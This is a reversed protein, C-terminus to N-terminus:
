RALQSLLCLLSSVGNGSVIHFLGTRSRSALDHPRPTRLSEAAVCLESRGPPQDRSWLGRSEIYPWTHGSNRCVPDTLTIWDQSGARDRPGTREFPDLREVAADLPLLFCGTFQIVPPRRPKFGYLGSLITRTCHLR